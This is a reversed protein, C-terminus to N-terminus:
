LQPLVYEDTQTDWVRVSDYSCSIVLRSDSSFAVTQVPPKDYILPKGLTEGTDMDWIRVTGNLDGSVVKLGDPSCAVSVVTRSHGRWEHPFDPWTKLRGERM